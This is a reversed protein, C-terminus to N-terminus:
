KNKDHHNSNFTNPISSLGINQSGVYNHDIAFSHHLSPYNSPHCSSTDFLRKKNDDTPNTKFKKVFSRLIGV